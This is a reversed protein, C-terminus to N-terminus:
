KTSKRKRTKKSEEELRTAHIYAIKVKSIDVPNGFSIHYQNDPYHKSIVKTGTTIGKTPNVKDIRTDRDVLFGVVTDVPNTIIRSVSVGKTPVLCEWIKTIQNNYARYFENLDIYGPHSDLISNLTDIFREANDQEPFTLDSPYIDYSSIFNGNRTWMINTRCDDNQIMENNFVRMGMDHILAELENPKMFKLFQDFTSDYFEHIDM